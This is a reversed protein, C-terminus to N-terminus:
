VGVQYKYADINEFLVVTPQRHISVCEDHLTALKLVDVWVFIWTPKKKM